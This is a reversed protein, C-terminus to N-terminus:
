YAHFAIIGDTKDYQKKTFIMDEYPRHALCNVGSVYHSLENKFDYDKNSSLELERYYNNGYDKNITKEPNMIYDLSVKLNNKISWISTTAM